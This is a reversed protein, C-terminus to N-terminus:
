IAKIAAICEELEVIAEKYKDLLVIKTDKDVIATELASIKENRAVVEAKLSAIEKDKSTIQTGLSEIKSECDAHQSVVPAEVVFQKLVANNTACEIKISGVYTARAYTEAKTVGTLVIHKVGDVYVRMLEHEYDITQAPPTVITTTALSVDTAVVWSSIEKLLYGNSVEAVTYTQGKVWSPITQGTKYHIASSKVTVRSGVVIGNSPTTVPVSVTPSFPIAPNIANAAASVLVDYNTGRWLGIDGANDCFCLEVLLAQMNSKALDHFDTRYKVGRSKFGLKVFNNIMRQAAAVAKTSGTNYCYVEIGYANGNFANMHFPVYLDCGNTNAKNTGQILDLSSTSANSNCDVPTDGHAKLKAIVKESFTRVTAQEDVIGMAGKCNPSHGGRVGPKM